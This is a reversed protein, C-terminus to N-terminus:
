TDAYLFDFLVIVIFYMGISTVWTALHGELLKQIIILFIAICNQLIIICNQMIVSDKKSNAASEIHLNSNNDGAGSAKVTANASEPLVSGSNNSSENSLNRNWENSHSRNSENSYSRNNNSHNSSVNKAKFNADWGM